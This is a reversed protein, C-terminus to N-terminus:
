ISVKSELLRKEEELREYRSISHNNNNNNTDLVSESFSSSNNNSTNTNNSNANININSNHFQPQSQSQHILSYGSTGRNNNNNNMHNNPKPPSKISNSILQIPTLQAQAIGNKEVQDLYDIVSTNNNMQALAKGITIIIFSFIM